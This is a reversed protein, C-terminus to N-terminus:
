QTLQSSSSGIRTISTLIANIIGIEDQNDRSQEGWSHFLGLLIENRHEFQLRSGSDCHYLTAVRRKILYPEIVGYLFGSIKNIKKVM